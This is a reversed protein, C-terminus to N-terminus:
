NLHARDWSLQGISIGDTTEQLGLQEANNMKRSYQCRLPSSREKALSV